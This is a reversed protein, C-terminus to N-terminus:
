QPTLMFGHPADNLLGYGVIVGKDTVSTAANLQWGDGNIVEPQIKIIKSHAIRVAVLDSNENAQQIWGVAQGSKNIALPMDSFYEHQPDLDTLTGSWIFGRAQNHATYSAGVVVGDGNIAVGRSKVTGPLTGLNTFEGQDWVFAEFTGSVAYEGTVQNNGNVGLASCLTDQGAGLDSVGQGASWMFCHTGEGDAYQGVVIDKDNIGNAVESGSGAPFQLVVPDANHPWFVATRRKYDEGVSDGSRNIDFVMSHSPLNRWNGNRYIQARQFKTAHNSAVFDTKDSISVPNEGPGLDTILYSNASASCACIALAGAVFEHRLSRIM